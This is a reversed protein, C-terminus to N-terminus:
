GLDARPGTPVDQDARPGDARPGPGTPEPRCLATPVEPGVFFFFVLVVMKSVITADAVQVSVLSHSHPNVPLCHRSVYFQILGHAASSIAHM